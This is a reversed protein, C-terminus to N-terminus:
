LRLVAAPDLHPDLPLDLFQSQLARLIKTNAAVAKLSEDGLNLGSQAAAQRVWETLEDDSM